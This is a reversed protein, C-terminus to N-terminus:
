LNKVKKKKTKQKSVPPYYFMSEIDKGIILLHEYGREEKRIKIIKCEYKKEEFLKRMKQLDRLSFLDVDTKNIATLINDYHKYSDSQLLINNVGNDHQKIYEESLQIDGKSASQEAKPSSREAM